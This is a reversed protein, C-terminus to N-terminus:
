SNLIPLSSLPPPSILRSFRSHGCQLRRSRLSRYAIPHRCSQSDRSLTRAPDRAFISSSIVRSVSERHEGLIVTKRESLTVWRVHDRRPGCTSHLSLSITGAAPPNGPDPRTLLTPIMERSHRLRGVGDGNQNGERAKGDGAQHSLQEDEIRDAVRCRPLRLRVHCAQGTVRAYLSIPVSLGLRLTLITLKPM